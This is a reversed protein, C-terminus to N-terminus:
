SAWRLYCNILGLFLFDIFTASYSLRRKPELGSFFIRSSDRWFASRFSSTFTGLSIQSIPNTKTLRCPPTSSARVPTVENGGRGVIICHGMRALRAITGSTKEFLSWLSPHRGLLENITGEWEGITDDPMFKELEAPLDHDDLVQSVLNEDFM